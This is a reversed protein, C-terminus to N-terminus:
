VPQCWFGFYETDVESVDAPVMLATGEPKIDYNKMGPYNLWEDKSILKTVDYMRSKTTTVEQGSLLAALGEVFEATSRESISHISYELSVANLHHGIFSKTIVADKMICVDVPLVSYIAQRAQNPQDSIFFIGSDRRTTHVDIIYDPVFDNLSKEVRTLEENEHDVVKEAYHRNMDSDIFRKQEQYAQQNGIILQVSEALDPYTAIFANYLDIGYTEDGHIAALITLKKM